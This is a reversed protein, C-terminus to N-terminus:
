ITFRHSTGNARFLARSASTKCSRGYAQLYTWRSGPGGGRSTISRLMIGYLRPPTPRDTDMEFSQGRRYYKLWLKNKGYFSFEFVVMGNPLSFSTKWLTSRFKPACVEFCVYNGNLSHILKNLSKSAFGTLKMQQQFSKPQQFSFLHKCFKAKPYYHLLFGKCSRHAASVKRPSIIVAELADVLLVLSHAAKYVSYTCPAIGVLAKWLASFGLQFFKFIPFRITFPVSLGWAGLTFREMPLDQDSIPAIWFISHEM